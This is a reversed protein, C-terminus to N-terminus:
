ERLRGVRGMGNCKQAKMRPHRNTMVARVVYSYTTGAALATEDTYSTM